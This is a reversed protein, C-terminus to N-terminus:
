KQQGVEQISNIFAHMEERYAINTGVKIFTDKLFANITLLREVLTTYDKRLMANQQTIRMEWRRQLEDSACNVLDIPGIIFKITKNSQEDAQDYHIQLFQRGSSQVVFNGREFDQYLQPCTIPLSLIGQIHLSLWRTYNYHKFIFFWKVLSILIKVSLKFNYERMSGIFVLCDIQFKEILM